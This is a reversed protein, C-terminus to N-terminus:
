PELTDERRPLSRDWASNELKTAPSELMVKVPAGDTSIAKGTVRANVGNGSGLALWRGPALGDAAFAYRAFDDAESWECLLVPGTLSAHGRPRALVCRLTMAPSRAPAQGDRVEPCVSDDATLAVNIEGGRLAHTGRFGQQLSFEQDQDVGAGDVSLAHRWGLCVTASGDAVLDVVLSANSRHSVHNRAHAGWMNRQVLVAYRGPVFGIPEFTPGLDATPVPGPAAEGSPADTSMVDKADGPSPREPVRDPSRGCAFATLWVVHLRLDM